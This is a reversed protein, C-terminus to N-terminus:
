LDMWFPSGPAKKSSSHIIRADKFVKLFISTREFDGMFMENELKVKYIIYIVWRLSLEVQQKQQDGKTRQLGVKDLRRGKGSHAPSM